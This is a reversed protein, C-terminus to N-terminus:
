KSLKLRPEKRKEHAAIFDAITDKYKDSIDLFKIGCRYQSSKIFKCYRVEAKLTIKEKLKFIDGPIELIVILGKPIFYKSFIGLGTKSIDLVDAEFCNGDALAFKQKLDEEVRLTVKLSINLRRALRTEM